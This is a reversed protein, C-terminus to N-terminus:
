SSLHVWNNLSFAVFLSSRFVLSCIYSIGIIIGEEILYIFDRITKFYKRSIQHTYLCLSENRKVSFHFITIVFYFFPSFSTSNLADNGILFLFLILYFSGFLLLSTLVPSSFIPAWIDAWKIWIRVWFTWTIHIGVKTKTSTSM